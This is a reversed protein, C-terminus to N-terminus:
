IIIEESINRDDILSRLSKLFDPKESKKRAAM